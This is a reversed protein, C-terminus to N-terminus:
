LAIEFLEALSRLADMATPATPCFAARLPLIRGDASTITGTVAGVDATPIHANAASNKELTRGVVGLFDLKPLEDTEFGFLVLARVGCLAETGATIGANILGQSNGGDLLRLIGNRVSGINGRREALEVLLQATEAPLLHQQYVTMARKSAAYEKALEAADASAEGGDLAALVGRLFAATDNTAISRHAYEAGDYGAVRDIFM